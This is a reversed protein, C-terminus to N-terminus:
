RSSGGVGGAILEGVHRGVRAGSGRRQEWDHLLLAADMPLMMMLQAVVELGVRQRQEGRGVGGGVVVGGGDGAVAGVVDELEVRSGGRV